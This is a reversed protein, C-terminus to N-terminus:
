SNGEVSNESLQQMLRAADAPNMKEMIKSLADAKINALVKIAEEEELATIIQAAKKPSMSEYTRIIDKFARRNDEQALELEEIELQLRQREINFSQIEEDKSILTNELEAMQANVDAIEAELDVIKQQYQVTSRDEEKEEEDQLMSSIGPIKNGIEKGYQFVNVGAVSMVILTLLIVFFLPIIAILVWQFKNYPKEEVLNETENVKKGM